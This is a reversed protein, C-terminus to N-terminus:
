NQLKIHGKYPYDGTEINDTMNLRGTAGEFVGTGSGAVIPHQCRGKFEAGIFAGDEACGEYKAEFRYTTWFTGSEGLYTGVFYERGIERYTGSPSCEYEDIFTYWCGELDGTMNLAYSANEGASNCEDTADFYSIGSVQVSGETSKTNLSNGLDDNNTPNDKSCGGIMLAISFILGILSKQKM